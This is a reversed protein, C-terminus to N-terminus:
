KTVKSFKHHTFAGTIIILSAMLNSNLIESIVVAISLIFLLLMIALNTAIQKKKM